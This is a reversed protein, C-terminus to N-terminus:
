KNIDWKIEKACWPCFKFKEGTYEMDKTIFLLKQANIIQEFSKEWGECRNISDCVVGGRLNDRVAKMFKDLNEKTRKM